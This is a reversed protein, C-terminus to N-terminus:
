VDKVVTTCGSAGLIKDVKKEHQTVRTSVPEHVEAESFVKMVGRHTLMSKVEAGAIAKVM